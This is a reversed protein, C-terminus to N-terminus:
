ANYCGPHHGPIGCGCSSSLGDGGMTISYDAPSQPIFIDQEEVMGRLLCLYTIADNIRGRVDERQSRHGNIYACIGDMHKMLFTMLIQERTLNLYEATREFNGFANEDRRAYEAQGQERLKMCETFTQEMWKQLDARTM